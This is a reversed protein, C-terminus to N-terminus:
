IQLEGNTTSIELLYFNTDANGKAVLLMPKNQYSKKTAAVLASWETPATGTGDGATILVGTMPNVQCLYLNVDTTGKAAMVMPTVQRAKAPNAAQFTEWTTLPM